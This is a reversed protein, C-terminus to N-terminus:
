RNKPRPMCRANPEQRTSIQTLGRAHKEYDYRLLPPSSLKVHSGQCAQLWGAQDGGPSQLGDGGAGVTKGALM